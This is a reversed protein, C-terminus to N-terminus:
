NCTGYRQLNWQRKIRHSALTNMRRTTVIIHKFYVKLICSWLIGSWYLVQWIVLSWKLVMPIALWIHCKALLDLWWPFKQPIPFHGSLGCVESILFSPHFSGHKRSEESSIQSARQQNISIIVLKSKTCHKVPTHVSWQWMSFCREHPMMIDNMVSFPIPGFAVIGLGFYGGSLRLWFCFSWM